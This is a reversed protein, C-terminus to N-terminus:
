GEGFIVTAEPKVRVHGEDTARVEGDHEGHALDSVAGSVNM